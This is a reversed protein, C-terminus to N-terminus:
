DKQFIYLLRLAGSFPLHWEQTEILRLGKNDMRQWEALEAPGRIGKMCIIRGGPTCYPAALSLFPTMESLARSTILSYAAQPLTTEGNPALRTEMVEVNQLSLTRIVHRLFAARKQRPEVLTVKLEPIATKLVLGPFGAGTGIDLLDAAPQRCLFPLMTLSDLFHRDIIELVPAAGVLNMKGNWKWLEAFYRGLQNAVEASLELNLREAGSRLIATPDQNM